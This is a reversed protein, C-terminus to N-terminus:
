RTTGQRVLLPFEIIGERLLTKMVEEEIKKYDLLDGCSLRTTYKAVCLALAHCRKVGIGELAEWPDNIGAVLPCNPQLTYYVIDAIELAVRVTDEEGSGGPQTLADILEIAEGPKKRDTSFLKFIIERRGM